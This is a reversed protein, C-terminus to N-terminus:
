RVKRLGEVLYQFILGSFAETYSRGGITIKLSSSSNQWLFYQTKERGEKHLSIGDIYPDIQVVKDLLVSITKMGGSFILRQDTLTLIGRDITKIEQHSESSSGFSGLRFSVGKAVWISPGAYGGHTVRVARPEKLTVNPIACYIKEAQKLIIPSTAQVFTINVRGDRLESLWRSKDTEYQKADSMGGKEIAGWERPELVQYRYEQWVHNSKDQVRILKLKDAKPRFIAECSACIVSRVKILGGLYTKTHETISVSHCLPCKELVKNEVGM